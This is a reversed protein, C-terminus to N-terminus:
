RKESVIDCKKMAKYLDRRRIYSGNPLLQNRRRPMIEEQLSSRYITEDNFPFCNVEIHNYCSKNLYWNYNKICHQTHPTHQLTPHQRSCLLRQTQHLQSNKTSHTYLTNHLSPHLAPNLTPHLPSHLSPHRTTHQAYLTNNPTTSHATNRTTNPTNSPTTNPTNIHTTNPTTNTSSLVITHDTKIERVSCM